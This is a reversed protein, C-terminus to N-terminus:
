KNYENMTRDAGITTYSLIMDVCRTIMEPLYKMEEESWDGLVYDIQQGAYFDNGIGVRIRPYDKRGMRQEIDALGNHGGSSGKKRLRCTSFPLHIDDVIVLIQEPSKLKLKLGWYSVAKGSLNMFTSPKLVHISRGKFKLAAIWGHREEKWEGKQQRVLEDVVKFGVNHRSNEYKPGPNGLGVILYKKHSM